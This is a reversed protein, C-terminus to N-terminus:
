DAEHGASQLVLCSSPYSPFPLSNSVPLLGQPCSPLYVQARIKKRPPTPLNSHRRLETDMKGKSIQSQPSLSQRNQLQQLQSRAGLGMKPMSILHAWRCHCPVRYALHRNQASLNRRIHDGYFQTVISEARLVNMPCHFADFPMIMMYSFLFICVRGWRGKCANIVRLGDIDTNSTREHLCYANYLLPVGNLQM